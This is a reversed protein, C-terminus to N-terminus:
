DNVVERKLRKESKGLYTRYKGRKRFNSPTYMGGEKRWVQLEVEVDLYNTGSARLHKGLKARARKRQRRFSLYHSRIVLLEWPLRCCSGCDVPALFPVFELACGVEIESPLTWHRFDGNARKLGRDLPLLKGVTNGIGGVKIHRIFNACRDGLKDAGFWFFERKSSARAGTHGSDSVAKVQFGPSSTSVALLSNGRCYVVQFGISSRSPM